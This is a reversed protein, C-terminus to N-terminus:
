GELPVAFGLPFGYTISYTIRQAFCFTISYPRRDVSRFTNCYLPGVASYEDHISDRARSFDDRHGHRRPSACVSGGAACLSDNLTGDGRVGVSRAGGPSPRGDSSLSGM